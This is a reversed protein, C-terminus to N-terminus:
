SLPEGQVTVTVTSVEPPDAPATPPDSTPDTEIPGLKEDGIAASINVGTIGIALLREDPDPYDVTPSQTLVTRNSIGQVSGQQILAGMVATAYLSAMMRTTDEDQRNVIVSGVRVSFWQEYADSAILEPGTDAPNCVVIVAPTSDERYSEFDTAGYIWTPDPRHSARPTLGLQREQENLYTDLWTQLHTIVAQEVQWPGVLAGFNSNVTM